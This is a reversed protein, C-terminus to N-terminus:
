LFYHKVISYKTHIIIIISVKFIFGFSVVNPITMFLEYSMQYVNSVFMIVYNKISLYDLHKYVLKLAYTLKSFELLIIGDYKICSFGM